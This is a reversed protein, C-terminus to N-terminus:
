LKRAKGTVTDMSVRFVRAKETMADIYKLGKDFFQASYKHLLAELATQKDSDFVEQAEGAVVVSHYRTAFKKPLLEVNGVVCFSVSQNHELNDLKQGESRLSLVPVPRHRLFEPARRLAQRRSHGDVACWVGGEEPLGPSGRPHDCPGTQAIRENTSRRKNRYNDDFIAESSRCLINM